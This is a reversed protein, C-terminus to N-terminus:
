KRSNSPTWYALVVTEILLFPIGVLRGRNTSLNAVLSSACHLRITTFATLFSYDSNSKIQVGRPMRTAHPPNDKLSTVVLHGLSGHNLPHVPELRKYCVRKIAFIFTMALWQDGLVM